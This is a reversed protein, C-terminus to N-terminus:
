RPFYIAMIEGVEGGPSTFTHAPHPSMSPLFTFLNAPLLPRAIVQAKHDVKLTTWPLEQVFTQANGM